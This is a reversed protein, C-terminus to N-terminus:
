PSHKYNFHLYIIHLTKMSLALLKTGIYVNSFIPGFNQKVSISEKLNQKALKHGMLLM